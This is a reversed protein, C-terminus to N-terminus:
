LAMREVIIMGIVVGLVAAITLLALMTRFMM